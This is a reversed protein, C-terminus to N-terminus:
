FRGRLREKVPLMDLGTTWFGTLLAEVFQAPLREKRMEAALRECDYELPVFSFPDEADTDLFAYWVNRAGDNAPRALAGANVVRRGSPLAVQWHLGTHACVLVDAGADRVMMELLDEPTTSEWLPEDQRRPSGHVLLYRLGEAAFSIRHPLATLWARHGSSIKEVTYAQDSRALGAEAPDAYCSPGASKENGVADDHEGQVTAVGTERLLEVSRDPHPGFGVVDGLCYVAEAGRRRADRMAEELAIWNGHVEGVFAARV